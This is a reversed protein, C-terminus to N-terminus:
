EHDLDENTTTAPPACRCIGTQTCGCGGRCKPNECWGHAPAATEPGPARPAPSNEAAERRIAAADADTWPGLPAASARHFAPCTSAHQAGIGIVGCTCAGALARLLRANSSFAPVAATARGPSPSSALAARYNAAIVDRINQAIIRMTSRLAEVSRLSEAYGDAKESIDSLRLAAADRPTSSLQERAEDREKTADILADQLAAAEDQAVKWGAEAEEARSLAAAFASLLDNALAVRVQAHAAGLLDRVLAEITALDAPASPAPPPTEPTM